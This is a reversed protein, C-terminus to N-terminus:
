NLVRRDNYGVNFTMCLADGIMCRVRFDDVLEIVLSSKLLENCDESLEADIGAVALAAAVVVVM